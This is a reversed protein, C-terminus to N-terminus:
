QYLQQPMTFRVNPMLESVKDFCWEKIEELVVMIEYRTVEKADIGTGVKCYALKSFYFKPTYFAELIAHLHADLPKEIREQIMQQLEDALEDAGLQRFIQRSLEFVNNYFKPRDEELHYFRYFLFEIGSPKILSL